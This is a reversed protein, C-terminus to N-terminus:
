GSGYGLHRKSRQRRPYPFGATRDALRPFIVSLWNTPQTLCPPRRTLTTVPAERSRARMDPLHAAIRRSPFRSDVPDTPLDRAEAEFQPPAIQARDASGTTEPPFNRRLMWAQPQEDVIGAHERRPPLRGRLGKLRCQRHVM